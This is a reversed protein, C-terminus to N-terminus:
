CLGKFLCVSDKNQIYLVWKQSSSLLTAKADTWKGNGSLHFVTKTYGDM